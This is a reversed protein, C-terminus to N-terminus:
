ECTLPLNGTPYRRLAHEGRFRPSLPGKEQPYMMTYPPKFMQEAALWMGRVIETVLMDKAVKDLVPVQFQNAEAHEAQAERMRRKALVTERLRPTSYFRM